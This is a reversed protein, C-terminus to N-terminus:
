KEYFTKLEELQLKLTPLRRDSLLCKNETKGSAKPVISVNTKYVEKMLTLVTYKSNCEETGLQTLVPATDFHRMLYECEKAWQLTTVGNWFRDTFGFV